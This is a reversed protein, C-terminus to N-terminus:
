VFAEFLGEGFRSPTGSQSLSPLARRGSIGGLARFRFGQLGLAM